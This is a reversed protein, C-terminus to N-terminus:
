IDIDYHLNISSFLTKRERVSSLLAPDINQFILPVSLQSHAIEMSSDNRRVETRSSTWSVYCIM